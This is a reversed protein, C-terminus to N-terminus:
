HHNKVNQDLASQDWDILGVAAGAKAFNQAISEGMGKGAGTVIVVKGAFRDAM